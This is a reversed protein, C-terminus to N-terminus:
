VLCGVGWCDDCIAGSIKILFYNKYRLNGDKRKTKIGAQSGVGGWGM